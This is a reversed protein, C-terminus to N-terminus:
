KRRQRVIGGREFRMDVALRHLNMVALMMLRVDGVEIGREVLMGLQVVLAEVVQQLVDVAHRVVDLRRHAVVAAAVPVVRHEPLQHRRVGAARRLARHGVRDVAREAIELLELGRDVLGAGRAEAAAPRPHDVVAALELHRLM